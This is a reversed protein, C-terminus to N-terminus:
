FVLIVSNDILYPFTFFHNCVEMSICLAKTIRDAYGFVQYKDPLFTIKNRSLLDIGRQIHKDYIKIGLYLEQLNRKEGHEYSCNAQLIVWLAALISVLNLKM